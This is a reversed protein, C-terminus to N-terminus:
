LVWELHPSSPSNLLYRPRRLVLYRPVGHYLCSWLRLLTRMRFLLSDGIV